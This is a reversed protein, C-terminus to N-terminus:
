QLLTSGDAGILRANSSATATHNAV